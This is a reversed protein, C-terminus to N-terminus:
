LSVVELDDRTWVREGFVFRSIEFVLFRDKRRESIEYVEDADRTGDETNIIDIPFVELRSNSVGISHEHVPFEMQRPFLLAYNISILINIFYQKCRM